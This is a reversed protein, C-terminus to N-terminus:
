LISLAVTKGVKIAVSVSLLKYYEALATVKFHDYVNLMTKYALTDKPMKNTRDIL